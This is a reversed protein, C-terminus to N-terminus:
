DGSDGPGTDPVPTADQSPVDAPEPLQELVRDREVFLRGGIELFREWGGGTEVRRWRDGVGARRTFVDGASDLAWEHTGHIRYDHWGLVQGPAQGTPATQQPLTAESQRPTSEVRAQDRPDDGSRLLMYALVLAVGLLGLAVWLLVQGGPHQTAEAPTERWAVAGDKPYGYGSGGTQVTVPAPEPVPVARTPRTSAAPARADQGPAPPPPSPPRARRPATARGYGTPLSLSAIALTVDDGAGRETTERLWVELSQGVADLGREEVMQLIDTGVQLFATESQFSNAYGDTSLLILRPAAELTDVGVRFDRWARPLCLSTTENAMLRRDPPLPLWATGDRAVLMIDGDGLQLYYVGDRTVSVVLITAGYALLPNGDLERRAREDLGDLDGDGFPDRKLDARVERDWREVITKAIGLLQDRAREPPVGTLALARGRVLRTAVSVALKSGRDSRFSRSSGHGDAVAVVVHDGHGSEPVCAYADQNPTRTRGHSAGVVSRGVVQVLPRGTTDAM